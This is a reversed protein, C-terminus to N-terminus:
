AWFTRRTIELWVTCNTKKRRCKIIWARIALNSTIAVTASKSFKPHSSFVRKCMYLVVLKASRNRRRGTQALCGCTRLQRGPPGERYRAPKLAQKLLALQRVRFLLRRRLMGERKCALIARSPPTLSNSACFSWIKGCQLVFRFILGNSWDKLSLIHARRFSTANYSAKRCVGSSLM